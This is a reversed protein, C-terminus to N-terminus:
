KLRKARNSILQLKDVDLNHMICMHLLATLRRHVEGSADEPDSIFKVITKLENMSLDKLDIPTDRLCPTDKPVTHTLAWTTKNDCDDSDLVSSYLWQSILKQDVLYGITDVSCENIIDFEYDEDYIKAVDHRRPSSCLKDYFKFPFKINENVIVDTPVELLRECIHDVHQEILNIDGIFSYWKNDFVADVLKYSLDRNMYFMANIIRINARYDQTYYHTFVDVIHEGLDPIDKVLQNFDLSYYENAEKARADILKVIESVRDM